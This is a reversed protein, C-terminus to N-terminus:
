RKDPKMIKLKPKEEKKLGLKTSGQKLPKGTKLDFFASTKPKKLFLGKTMASIIHKCMCAVLHPNKQVDKDGSRKSPDCYHIDSSGKRALAQEAYFKFYECDCSVWVPSDSGKWPEYVRVIVKRDITSGRAKLTIERCPVGDEDKKDVVSDFRVAVKSANKYVVNHFVKTGTIIQTATLM